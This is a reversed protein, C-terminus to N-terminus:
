HNSRFFGGVDFEAVGLGSGSPMLQLNPSSWMSGASGHLDLPAQLLYNKWADSTWRGLAMIHPVSVNAAVASCVAGSRWSASKVSMPVGKGDVFSVKAALVLATTRAVMYERSLPKGRLRFAPSKPTVTTRSPCRMAYEEYLRVPCFTDDEELEFCPVDVEFLWWRAKPQRVSVVLARKDAIARICVDIVRLVKRVSRKSYLFEGGRLFGAVGVVSAAAFVRDDPSMAAMDPWGPLLPLIARLVAVTIPVKKGKAKAPYKKRLYRMTRRVSENGTLAWGHDLLISANRVGAMYMGLSSILIRKAQWHLWGCYTVPDVPYDPISRNHCFAGYSRAGTSYTSATSSTFHTRLGIDVTMASRPDARM